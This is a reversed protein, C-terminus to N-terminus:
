IGNIARQLIINEDPQFQNVVELCRKCPEKDYICDLFKCEECIQAEMDIFLIFMASCAIHLAHHHGWDKTNHTHGDILELLHRYIGSIWQEGPVTKWSDVGYKEDALRRIDAIGRMFETHVQTLDLKGDTIKASNNGYNALKEKDIYIYEKV